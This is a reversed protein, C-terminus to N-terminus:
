PAHLIGCPPDRASKPAPTNVAHVMKHCLSCVRTWECGNAGCAAAATHLSSIEVVACVGECMLRRTQLTAGEGVGEFSQVDGNADCVVVAQGGASM